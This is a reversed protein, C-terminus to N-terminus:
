ESKSTKRSRSSRSLARTEMGVSGPFTYRLRKSSLTISSLRLPNSRNKFITTPCGSNCVPLRTNPPKTCPSNKSVSTVRKPNASSFTQSYIGVPVTVRPSWLSLSTKFDVILDLLPHNVTGRPRNSPAPYHGVSPTSGFACLAAEFSPVRESPCVPPPLKNNRGNLELTEMRHMTLPCVCCRCAMSMGQDYEYACTLFFCWWRLLFLRAMLEDPIENGAPQIIDTVNSKPLVTM